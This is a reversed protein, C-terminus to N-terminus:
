WESEMRAAKHLKSGAWIPQFLSFGLGIFCTPCFIKWAIGLGPTLNVPTFVFRIIILAIIAMISAWYFVNINGPPICCPICGFIRYKEVFRHASRPWANLIGADIGLCKKSELKALQLTLYRYNYGLAITYVCSIILVGLAAYIGLVYSMLNSNDGLIKPSHLYVVGALAPGLIALFRLVDQERHRLAQLLLDHTQLMAQNRLDKDKAINNEEM